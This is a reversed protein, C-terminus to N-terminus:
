APGLLKTIVFIVVLLSMLLFVISIINYVRTNGKGM